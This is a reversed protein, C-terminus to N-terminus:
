DGVCPTFGNVGDRVLDPVCGVERSVVVPLGACMAENVALGWHEDAGSPLVFVDAAAYLAPLESQNVFGTFTVNNLEHEACFGRLEAEIEGSGAMVVTFGGLEA